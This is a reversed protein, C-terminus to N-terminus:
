RRYCTRHTVIKRWGAPTIGQSQEITCGVEPITGYAAGVPVPGVPTPDIGYAAPAYGSRYGPAYAPRGYGAADPGYGDVPRDPRYAPRGYGRDGDYGRDRWGDHPRDSGRADYVVRPAFRRDEGRFGPGVDQRRVVRAHDGDIAIDDQTHVVYPRPGDEYFSQAAAIQPAAAAGLAVVAALNLASRLMNNVRGQRRVSSCLIAGRSNFRM